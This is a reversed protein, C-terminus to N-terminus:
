LQHDATPQLRHPFQGAHEAITRGSTRELQAVALLNRPAGRADRRAFRDTVQEFASEFEALLAQPDTSDTAAVPVSKKNWM